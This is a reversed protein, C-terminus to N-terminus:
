ESEEKPESKPNNGKKASKPATPPNVFPTLIDGIRSELANLRADIASGFSKLTQELLSTDTGSQPNPQASPQNEEPLFRYTMLRGDQTWIKAYICKYDSQPFFYIQSDMPVENPRIEDPTDVWRGGALPIYQPQPEPEYPRWNNMPGPNMPQQPRMPDRGTQRNYPNVYQPM